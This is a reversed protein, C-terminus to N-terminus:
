SSKKLDATELLKRLNEDKTQVNDIKWAGDEMQLTITGKWVDKDLTFTIPVEAKDGKVTAAGVKFSTPEDQAVTFFDVDIDGVDGKPVNKASRKEWAHISGILAKSLWKEQKRLGAGTTDPNKLHAAYFEQVVANPTPSSAAVVPHARLLTALALACTSFRLYAPSSRMLTSTPILRTTISPSGPAFCIAPLKVLGIV